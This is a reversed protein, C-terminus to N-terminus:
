EITVAPKNKGVVFCNAKLTEFTEGNSKIMIVNNKIDEITGIKGINKGGTMMVSAGKEFKIHSLIKQDPISIILADSTKYDGKSVLIVRGDSLQLQTKGQYFGKGKITCIKSSAEKEEIKIPVLKRHKNLSIRYYGKIEPIALVDMLGINFKSDKRRVGDVLVEKHNLINRVERATDALKLMERIVLVLPMGQENSHTGSNVRAVWMIGKKKQTTWTKPMALRKLHNKVM